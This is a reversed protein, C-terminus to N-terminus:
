YTKVVGIVIINMQERSIGFNSSMVNYLDIRLDISWTSGNKHEMFYNDDKNYYCIDDGYPIYELINTQYGDFFAEFWNEAARIPNTKEFLIKRHIIDSM